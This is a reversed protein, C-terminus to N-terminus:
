MSNSIGSGVLPTLRFEAFRKKMSVGRKRSSSKWIRDKFAQLKKRSVRLQGGFGRFEYGVYELSDTKWRVNNKRLRIEVEEVAELLLGPCTASAM